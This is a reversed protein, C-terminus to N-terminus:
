ENNITLYQFPEKYTNEWKELLNYRNESDLQNFPSKNFLQYSSDTIDYNGTVINYKYKVITFNTSPQFKCFYSNFTNENSRYYHLLLLTLRFNFFKPNSNILEIISNYPIVPNVLSVDFYSSSIDLEFFSYNLDTLLTNYASPRLVIGSGDYSNTSNFTGSADIINEIINLYNSIDNLSSDIGPYTYYNRMKIFFEYIDIKEQKIISILNNQLPNNIPTQNIHIEYLLYLTYAIILSNITSYSTFINSYNLNILNNDINNITNFSSIIIRDILNINNLYSKISSPAIHYLNNITTFSPATFTSSIKKNINDYYTTFIKVNSINIFLNNDLNLETESKMYSGSRESYVINNIADTQNTSIVININYSNDKNNAFYQYIPFYRSLSRDFNRDAVFNVDNNQSVLRYEQEDIPCVILINSGDKIEELTISTITSGSNCIAFSLDTKIYIRNLYSIDIYDYSSDVGIYSEFQNNKNIPYDTIIPSSNSSTFSNKYYKSTSQANIIQYSPDYGTIAIDIFASSNDLTTETLSIDTKNNIYLNSSDLYNNFQDLQNIPPLIIKDYSVDTLGLNNNFSNDLNFLINGYDYLLVDSNDKIFTNISYDYITNIRNWTLDIVLSSVDTESTARDGTNNKYYVSSSDVNFAYLNDSSSNHKRLIIIDNKLTSNLVFGDTRSTTSLATVFNSTKSFHALKINANKEYSQMYNFIYPPDPITDIPNIIDISNRMLFIDSDKNNQMVNVYTNDNNRLIIIQYSFDTDTDKITLSIDTSYVSNSNSYYIDSFGRIDPTIKNIIIYSVDPYEPVNLNILIQFFSPHRNYVIQNTKEATKGYDFLEFLSKYKEISNTTQCYFYFVVNKSHNHTSTVYSNDIINKLTFLNQEYEVDGNVILKNLSCHKEGVKCTPNYCIDITKGSSSSSLDFYYPPNLHSPIICPIENYSSEISIPLSELNNVFKSVNPNNTKLSNSNSSQKLCSSLNLVKLYYDNAMINFFPYVTFNNISDIYNTLINQTSAFNQVYKTNFNIAHLLNRENIYTKAANFLYFESQDNDNYQFDKSNISERNSNFTMFPLNYIIPIGINLFQRTKNKMYDRVLKNFTMLDIEEDPDPELLNTISTKSPGGISTFDMKIENLKLFSLDTGNNGLGLVDGSVGLKTPLTLTYSTNITPPAIINISGADNDNTFVLSSDITIQSVDIESKLSIVNSGDINYSIDINKGSSLDRSIDFSFSPDFYLQGSADVRMFAGSADAQTKPLTLTYSTSVDSPAKITISSVDGVQFVLSTDITIKSVDINSCLDIINRNIDYNLNSGASLNDFHLHGSGDVRMFAGSNDSPETHPLTLTYTVNSKPAIISIKDSTSNTTFVLSNDIIVEDVSISPKLSIIQTNGVTNTFTNISDGIVNVGEGTFQVFNISNDGITVNSSDKYSLIWATNKYIGDKVFVYTNAIESSSPSGDFDDSRTLIMSSDFIQSVDYIGNYFPNTQGNILIRNGINFHSVLSIDGIKNYGETFLLVASSGSHPESLPTLNDSIDTTYRPNESTAYKVAEHAQIGLTTNELIKDMSTFKMVGSKDVTIFANESSIITEKNHIATSPDRAPLTLNYSNTLESSIGISVTKDNTNSQFVLSTDLKVTSLDIISNLFIVTSSDILSVDINKSGSLDIFVDSSFSPDFYLQGSGDVRMYAGSIDTSPAKDPLTLTYSTDFTSPAVITISSTDTYFVLSTDLKVTSVDITSQLSIVNSNDILTININRGGSLDRSVNSSFSPDFYLQGSGDVRMFAGSTDITKPLKLTYSSVDQPVTITVNSAESLHFVLSSDITIKSVDINSCLDIINTNRHYTLNSGASLDDFYLQGSGDVRMFAGSSDAKTKPLILNYTQNLNTPAFISIYNNNSQLVLSGDLTINSLDLNTNLNITFIQGSEDIIINNSSDTHIETLLSNFDNQFQNFVAFNLADSGVLVTSPDPSQYFGTRSHQDFVYLGSISLDHQLDLARVLEFKNPSSSIPIQSIKYIGNESADNQGAILFRDGLNFKNIDLLKQGSGDYITNVSTDFILSINTPAAGVVSTIGSSSYVTYDEELSKPFMLISTTSGSSLDTTSISNRSYVAYDVYDRTNFNIFTNIEQTITTERRETILNQLIDPSINTGCGSDCCEVQRAKNRIYNSYSGYKKVM